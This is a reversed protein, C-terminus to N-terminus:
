LSFTGNGFSSVIDIIEKLDRIRYDVRPTQPLVDEGAPHYWCTRLGADAGGKMDSTLSDGIMLVSDRAPSGIANLVHDFYASSPKAAGVEESIFVGDFVHDLGSYFLRTRQVSASGNTAVYQPVRGQFTRLVELANPCYIITDPIHSEYIENFSEALREDIGIERFFARYREVLVTAKDMEGRELKKWFSVNIQAYRSVMADTCVGLGLETFTCKIAASEAASFNLVTNDLDWLLARIM